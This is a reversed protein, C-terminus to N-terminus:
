RDGEAIATGVDALVDAWAAIQRGVRARGQRDSGPQRSVQVKHQLVTAVAELAMQEPSEGVVSAQKPKTLDAPPM